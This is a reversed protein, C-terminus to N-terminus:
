TATLGLAAMVVVCVVQTLFFTARAMVMWHSTSILHLTSQVIRAGLVVWALQDIVPSSVGAVGLSLVVAGYVPLNELCNLHARALRGRWPAEEADGPTFSNARRKGALVELTRPVLIGAVPLALTWLAFFVLSLLPPTM